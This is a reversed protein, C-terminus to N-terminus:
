DLLIHQALITFKPIVRMNGWIYMHFKLHFILNFYFVYFHCLFKPIDILAEMLHKYEINKQIWDTALFISLFRTATSSVHIYSDPM